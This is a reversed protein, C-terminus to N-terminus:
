KNHSCYLLCLHVIHAFDSHLKHMCNGSRLETLITVLSSQLVPVGPLPLLHERSVADLIATLVGLRDFQYRHIKGRPYLPCSIFSVM